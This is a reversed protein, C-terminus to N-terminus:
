DKKKKKGKGKPKESDRDEVGPNAQLNSGGTLSQVQPSSQTPAPSVQASPSPEPSPSPTQGLQRQVIIPIAATGAISVAGVIGKVILGKLSNEDKSPNPSPSSNDSM